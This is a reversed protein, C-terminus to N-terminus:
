CSSLNDIFRKFRPSVLFLIFYLSYWDMFTCQVVLRECPQTYKPDIPDHIRLLCAPMGRVETKFTIKPGRFPYNDSLDIDLPFTGGEYPSGAPGDIVVEWHFLDTVPSAGPRCFMPPDDAWLRRLENRIRQIGGYNVRETTTADM